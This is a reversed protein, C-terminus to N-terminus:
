KLAQFSNFFDSENLGRWSENKASMILQYLVDNQVFVRGKISVDGRELVFAQGYTGANYETRSIIKAENSQALAEVIANVLNRSQAGGLKTPYVVSVARCQVVDNDATLTTRPYKDNMKDVEKKPEAPFAVRLRAADATHPTWKTQEAVAAIAATEQEGQVQAFQQSLTKSKAADAQLGEPTFSKVRAIEDAKSVSGISLATLKLNGGTKVGNVYKGGFAGVTMRSFTPEQANWFEIMGDQYHKIKPDPAYQQAYSIKKNGIQALVDKVLEEGHPDLLVDSGKVFFEPALTKYLFAEVKAVDGQRLLNHTFQFFEFDTKFAPVEIAPLNKVKAGSLREADLIALSKMARIEQADHTTKGLSVERTSSSLFRNWPAKVADRYLRVEFVMTKKELETDSVPETFTTKLQLSVSTPTHWVYEVNDVYAIPMLAGVISNYHFGLFKPLDKNLLALVQTKDPAPLGHYENNTVKFERYTSNGGNITYRAFGDIEITAKPHEPIGAKRVINASREYFYQKWVSSWSRVTRGELTVSVTDKATLDKKIQADSPQAHASATLVCVALPLLLLRPSFM